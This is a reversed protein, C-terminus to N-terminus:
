WHDLSSFLPDEPKECKTLNLVVLLVRNGQESPSIVVNDLLPM